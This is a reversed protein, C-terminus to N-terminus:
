VIRGEAELKCVGNEVVVALSRSIIIFQSGMSLLWSHVLTCIDYFRLNSINIYLRQKTFVASVILIFLSLGMLNTKTM